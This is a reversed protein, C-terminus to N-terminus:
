APVAERVIRLDGDTLELDVVRVEGRLVLLSDNTEVFRKWLHTIQETEAQTIDDEVALVGKGDKFVTLTMRM